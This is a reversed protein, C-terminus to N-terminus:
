GAIYLGGNVHLVEGTIFSSGSSCLFAIVSAIESPQGLRKLPTQEVSDSGRTAILAQTMPTEIIGPSVANVRTEPGLERALARTLSLLGGKSTGYHVNSFAGRHAAISSLNVIASNARLAPIARRCLYFVGDLNIGLTQRWQEDTMQRIPQSQYLGASPVLFDIGGFRDIALQVAKASDEPNAANMRLTVVREGSPDLERSFDAM